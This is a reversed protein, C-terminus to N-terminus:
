LAKVEIKKVVKLIFLALITVLVALGYRDVTVAIAIAASFLLSAATTLGTIAGDTRSQIITGAGIFSIGTVIAEIVRLPDVRLSTSSVDGKFENILPLSVVMLLAAAGSVLMHTRLGAPRNAIEREVGIAGGLAMATLIKLADVLTPYNELIATLESM